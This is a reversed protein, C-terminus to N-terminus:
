RKNIGRGVYPLDLESFITGRCLATQTDYVCNWNAKQMPYYFIGLQQCSNVNSEGVHAQFCNDKDSYM